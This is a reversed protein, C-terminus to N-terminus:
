RGVIADIEEFVYGELFVILSKFGRRDCDFRPHSIQAETFKPVCTDYFLPLQLPMNGNAAGM